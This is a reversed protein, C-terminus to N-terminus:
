VKGKARFKAEDLKFGGPSLETWAESLVRKNATAEM